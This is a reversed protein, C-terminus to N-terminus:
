RRPSNKNQEPETSYVTEEGKVLSSIIDSSVKNSCITDENEDFSFFCDTYIESAASDEDNDSTLPCTVSLQEVSEVSSLLNETVLETLCVKENQDTVFAKDQAAESLCVTKINKETLPQSSSQINGSYNLGDTFPHLTLKELPVEVPSHRKECSDPADTFAMIPYGTEPSLINDPVSKTLCVRNNAVSLSDDQSVEPLSIAKESEESFNFNESPRGNSPNEALFQLPINDLSLEFTSVAENPSLTNDSPLETCCCKTKNGDTFPLKEPASEISSVNVMGEELCPFVGPSLKCFYNKDETWTDSSFSDEPVEYSSPWLEMTQSLLSDSFLEILCMSNEDGKSLSSNDQSVVPQAIAKESEKSFHLHDSFKGTSSDEKEELFQLPVNDFCHQITSAVVTPLFIDESSLMNSCSDTENYFPFLFQDAMAETSSDVTDSKEQWPFHDPLVYLSDNKEVTWAQSPFDDIPVKLLSDTEECSPSPPNTFDKVPCTMETQSLRGDRFSEILCLRKEDANILAVKEPSAKPRSIVKENQESFNFNNTSRNTSSNETLCQLPINSIPHQNLSESLSFENESSLVTPFSHVKNEDQLAFKNPTAETSSYTNEGKGLWSFTDLSLVLSDIKKEALTQSPFSEMPIGVSNIVECSPLTFVEVPCTPQIQSINESFSEMLCVNKENVNSLSPNNQSTKSPSISGETKESFNVDNSSTDTASNPNEVLFQLPINNLSPKVECIVGTTINDLSLEASTFINDTQVETLCYNAKTDNSSSFIDPIPESSSVVTEAKVPSVKISKPIDAEAVSSSKDANSETELTKRDCETKLHVKDSFTNIPFSAEAQLIINNSSPETLSKRNLDQGTLPTNDPPEKAPCALTQEDRVLLHIGDSISKACSKTETEPYNNKEGEAPLPFTGLLVSFPSVAEVPTLINASSADILNVSNVVGDSFPTNDLPKDNSCFTEVIKESFNHSLNKFTQVEKDCFDPLPFIDTLVKQASTGEAESLYAGKDSHCDTPLSTNGQFSETEGSTDLLSPSDSFLNANSNIEETEARPSLKDSPLDFEKINDECNSTLLLKDSSLNTTCINQLPSHISDLSSKSPWSNQVTETPLTNNSELQENMSQDKVYNFTRTSCDAEEICTLSSLNNASTGLSLVGEPCGNSQAFTDLLSNVTCDTGAPSIISDISPETLCAIKLDENTLFSIQPTIEPTFVTKETTVVSLSSEPSLNSPSKTKETEPLLLFNDSLAQSPYVIVESNSPQPLEAPLHSSGLPVDILSATTVQKAPCVSSVDFPFSAKEAGVLPLSEVMCDESSFIKKECVVPLVCKNSDEVIPHDGNSPSLNSKSDSDILNVRGVGQGPLITNDLSIDNVHIDEETESRLLVNHSPIESVCHAAVDVSPSVLSKSSVEFPLLSEENTALVGCPCVSNNHGDLLCLNDSSKTVLCVTKEVATPSDPDDFSSCVTVDRSFQSHSAGSSIESSCGSEQGVSGLSACPLNLHREM